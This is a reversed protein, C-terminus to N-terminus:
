RSLLESKTRRRKRNNRAKEIACELNLGNKINAFLTKYNVGSIEAWEAITKGKIIRSNRRNRAQEKMTAWRCNEPCYGKNNDIREITLDDQYGSNLAWVIFNRIDQWEECITIKRGGYNYFYKCKTNYCRNKMSQYIYYLRTRSYGYHKGMKGGM